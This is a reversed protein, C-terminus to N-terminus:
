VKELIVQWDLNQETDAKESSSNICLLFRLWKLPKILMAANDKSYKKM